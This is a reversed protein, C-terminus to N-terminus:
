GDCRSLTNCVEWCSLTPVGPGEESAARAIDSLSILGLLHGGVDVVPLHRVSATNMMRLVDMLLDEPQCRHVASTLASRVQVEELSRETRAAARCIDGETLMGVVRGSGDSAVVVLCGHGEQSMTRAADLLSDSPRCTAVVKTMMKEVSM